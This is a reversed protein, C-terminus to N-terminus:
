RNRKKLIELGIKQTRAKESKKKNAARQALAKGIIDEGPRYNEDDSQESKPRKKKVKPARGM